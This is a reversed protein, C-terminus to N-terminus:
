GSAFLYIKAVEGGMLRFIKRRLDNLGDIMVKVHEGTKVVVRNIGELCQFIWRMTPRNTPQRIQNPLTEKAQLLARRLRRQAISYVLLALTMVMM